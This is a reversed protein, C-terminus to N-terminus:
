SGRKGGGTPVSVNRRHRSGMAVEQSLQADRKGRRLQFKELTVLRERFGQLFGLIRRAFHLVQNFETTCQDGRTVAGFRFQAM